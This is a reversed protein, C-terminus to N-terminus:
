IEFIDDLTSSEPRDVNSSYLCAHGEKCLQSVVEMKDMHRVTIKGNDFHYLIYLQYKLGRFDLTNRWDSVDSPTFLILELDHICGTSLFTVFHIHKLNINLTM